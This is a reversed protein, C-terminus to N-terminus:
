SSVWNKEAKYRVNIGLDKVSPEVYELSALSKVPQSLFFFPYIYSGSFNRFEEIM